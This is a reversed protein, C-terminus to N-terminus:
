RFDRRLHQQQVEIQRCEISGVANHRQSLGVRYCSDDGHCAVYRIFGLQGQELSADATAASDIDLGLQQFPDDDRNLLALKPYAAGYRWAQEVLQADHSM